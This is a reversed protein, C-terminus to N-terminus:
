YTTLVVLAGMTVSLIRGAMEADKTMLSIGAILLAFLPPFILQTGKTALGVYGNGSLLNQAISAYEAGDADIAGTFFVAALARLVFAIALIFLLPLDSVAKYLTNLQRAGSLQDAAKQMSTKRATHM